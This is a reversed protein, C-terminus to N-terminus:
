TPTPQAQGAGFPDTYQDDGPDQALAPAPALLALALVGGALRRRAPSMARSPLPAGEAVTAGTAAGVPSSSTAAGAAGATARDVSRARAAAARVVSVAAAAPRAAAPIAALPM